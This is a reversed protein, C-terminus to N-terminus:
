KKVRPFVPKWGGHRTQRELVELSPILRSGDDNKKRLLNMKTADAIAKKARRFVHDRQANDPSHDLPLPIVDYDSIQFLAELYAFLKPHKRLTPCYDLLEGNLENIRREVPRGRRRPPRLYPEPTITAHDQKIWAAM